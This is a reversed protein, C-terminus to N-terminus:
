SSSLLYVSLEADPPRVRALRLVVILREPQLRRAALRQHALAPHQLRQLLLLHAERQAARRAGPWDRRRAQASCDGCGVASGQFRWNGQQSCHALAGGRSGRGKGLSSGPPGSAGTAAAGRARLARGAEASVPPQAAAARCSATARHCRATAPQASCPSRATANSACASSAGAPLGAGLAGGVPALGGAGGAGFGVGSARGAESFTPALM